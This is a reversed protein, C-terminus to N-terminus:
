NLAIDIKYEYRTDSHLTIPKRQTEKRFCFRLSSHAGKNVVVDGTGAITLFYGSHIPTAECIRHAKLM